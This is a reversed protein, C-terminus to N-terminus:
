AFDSVFQAALESAVSPLSFRRGLIKELSTVPRRSGCPVIWDFDTLRTTVNLSFGHTSIGRHVHFGVAVLKEQQYWLGPEGPERELHIGQGSCWRKVSTEVACVFETVTFQRRKLDMIVYGLLQGPGHYTVEGGRDTRELAVGLRNREAPALLVHDLCARRGLTIVPPHELLLLHDPGKAGLLQEALRQQFRYASQYDVRGLWQTCLQGATSKLPLCNVVCRIRGLGSM